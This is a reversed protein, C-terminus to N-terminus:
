ATGPLIGASVSHGVTLTAAARGHAPFFKAVVVVAGAFGCGAELLTLGAAVAELDGSRGASGGNLVAEALDEGADGEVVDIWAAGTKEEVAELDGGGIEGAM